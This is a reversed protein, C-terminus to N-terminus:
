ERSPASNSTTFIISRLVFLCFKPVRCVSSLFCFVCVNCVLCSYSCCVRVLVILEFQSPLLSLYRFVLFLVFMVVLVIRLFGFFPPIFTFLFLLSCSASSSILTERERPKVIHTSRCINRNVGYHMQLHLPLNQFVFSYLHVNDHPLISCLCRCLHLTVSLYVSVASMFIIM